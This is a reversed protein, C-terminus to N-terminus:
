SGRPGTYITFSGTSSLVPTLAYDDIMSRFQLNEVYLHMCKKVFHQLKLRRKIAIMKFNGYLDDEIKVTTAVENDRKM